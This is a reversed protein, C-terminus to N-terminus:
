IKSNWYFLAVFASIRIRSFCLRCWVSRSSKVTPSEHHLVAQKHTINVKHSEKLRPACTQGVMCQMTIDDRAYWCQFPPKSIQRAVPYSSNVKLKLYSAVSMNAQVLIWCAAQVVPQQKVQCDTQRRSTERHIHLVWPLDSQSLFAEDTELWLLQVMISANAMAVEEIAFSPHPLRGEIGLNPSPFKCVGGFTNPAKESTATREIGAHPSSLSPKSMVGTAQIPKGDHCSWNM